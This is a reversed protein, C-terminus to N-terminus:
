PTTPKRKRDRVRHILKDLSGENKQVSLDVKTTTMDQDTSILQHYNNEWDIRVEEVRSDHALDFLRHAAGLDIIANYFDGQSSFEKSRAWLAEALKEDSLSRM